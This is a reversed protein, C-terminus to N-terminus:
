PTDDKAQKAGPKPGRKRPEKPPEPPKRPRTNGSRTLPTGPWAKKRSEALRRLALRLVDARKVDLGTESRIDEVLDDLVAEEADDLRTFVQKAKSPM